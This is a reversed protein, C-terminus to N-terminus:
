GKTPRIKAFTERFEGNRGRNIAKIEATRVIAAESPPDCGEWGESYVESGAPARPRDVWKPGM